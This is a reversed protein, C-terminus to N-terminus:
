RESVETRGGRLRFPLRNTRVLIGLFLIITMIVGGIVSYSTGGGGAFNDVMIIVPSDWYFTETECKEAGVSFVRVNFVHKGSKAKMGYSVTLDVSVNDGPGIEDIRSTELDFDFGQAEEGALDTISLRFTDAHNGINSAMLEYTQPNDIGKSPSASVYGGFYKNVSVSGSTTASHVSGPYQAMAVVNIAGITSAPAEMPVIVTVTYEEAGSNTFQMTQPAVVVSWGANCSGDLHVTVVGVPPKTIEVMGTFMATGPGEEVDVDQISPNLPALTLIVRVGDADGNPKAMALPSFACVIVLFLIFFACPRRYDSL